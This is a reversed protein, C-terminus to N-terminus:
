EGVIPSADPVDRDRADSPSTSPGVAERPTETCVEM